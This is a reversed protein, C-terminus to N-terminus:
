LYWFLVSPNSYLTQHFVRNSLPEYVQYVEFPVNLVVRTPLKSLINGANEFDLVLITETEGSIIM